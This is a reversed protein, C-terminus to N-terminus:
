GLIIIVCESHTNTAETIWYAIRMCRLIDDNTVQRVTDYKGENDGGYSQRPFFFNSCMFHTNQNERCNKDSVNRM